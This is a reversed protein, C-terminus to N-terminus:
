IDLNLGKDNQAKSDFLEQMIGITEYPTISQNQIIYNLASDLSINECSNLAEQRVIEYNLDNDFM